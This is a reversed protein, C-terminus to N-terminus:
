NGKQVPEIEDGSGQNERKRGRWYEEEAKAMKNKPMDEELKRKDGDYRRGEKLSKNKPIYPEWDPNAQKRKHEQKQRDRIDELDEIIAPEYESNYNEWQEESTQESQDFQEEMQVEGQESQDEAETPESQDFQEEM